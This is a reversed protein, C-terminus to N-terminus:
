LITNKHEKRAKKKISNIHKSDIQIHWLVLYNPFDKVDVHADERVEKALCEAFIYAHM